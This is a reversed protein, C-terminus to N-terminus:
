RSIPMAKMGYKQCREKFEWEWKDALMQYREADQSGSGSVLSQYLRKAAAAIIIGTYPANVNVSVDSTPQTLHGKGVIRLTTGTPLSDTFQIRGDGLARWATVPICFAQPLPTLNNASRDDVTYIQHPTDNVLSLDSIDYSYKPGVGIVSAEDVYATTTTKAYYVRFGVASPNSAITATVDLLEWGGGGTHYDSYTTDTGDYIALRVQSATSALVWKRFTPTTDGLYILDHNYTSNQYLYGATTSLACSSTGNHYYTNDEAATSSSARWYDPYSTETWIEMRSNKLWNGFMISQDDVMTYLWPFADYCAQQIATDKADPHFLRHIEYTVGSAVSGALVPSFTITGDSNDFPSASAVNRVSTDYTGSTLRIATPQQGGGGSRIWDSPKNMLTSDVLTANTGLSTTTSNNSGFILDGIEFSLSQRLTDLSTSM